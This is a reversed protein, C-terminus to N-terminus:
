MVEIKYREIILLILEDFWVLVQTFLQVGISCSSSFNSASVNEWSCSSYALAYVKASDWTFYFKRQCFQLGGRPSVLTLTINSNTYAM